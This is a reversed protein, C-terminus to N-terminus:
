LNQIANTFNSFSRASLNETCQTESHLSPNSLNCAEQAVIELFDSHLRGPMNGQLETLGIEREAAQLAINLPVILGQEIEYSIQNPSMLALADSALLVGRLVVLSGTEVHGLQGSALGHRQALLEFARRAPADRRPLIWPFEALQEGTVKQGALPHGARAVVRLSDTFLRSESLDQETADERLAGVIVDCAGLRLRQLLFEYSGDLVELTAAPYKKLLRVIARPVIQTRALPLAGIVLRSDFVGRRERLEAHALDIERLALSARTAVITGAASLVRNRQGGELVPQGIIREVEKTARRVSAETQGVSQATAAFSGTLAFQAMVRLQTISAYRELLDASVQRARGRPCLSPDQLHMLARRARQTVIMGEETAVASNGVRELLPARFIRTLKAIAQSAAPQSINVEQAARTLSGERVAIELLRLHRMNPWDPLPPRLTEPM